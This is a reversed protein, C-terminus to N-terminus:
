YEFNYTSNRNPATGTLLKAISLSSPRTFIASGFPTVTYSAADLNDYNGISTSTTDFLSLSRKLIGDVSNGSLDTSGAPVIWNDSLDRLDDQVSSFDDDNPNIFVVNYLNNNTIYNMLTMGAAACTPVATAPPSCTYLNGTLMNVNYTNAGNKHLTGDWKVLTYVSGPTGTIINSLTVNEAMFLMNNRGPVDKMVGRKSGNFADISSFDSASWIKDLVTSDISTDYNNPNLFATPVTATALFNFQNPMIKFYVNPLTFAPIYTYQALFITTEGKTVYSVILANEANTPANNASLYETLNSLVLSNISASTTGPKIERYISSAATKLGQTLTLNINLAYAYETMLGLFIVMFPAVLLFEVLQQSKKFKM